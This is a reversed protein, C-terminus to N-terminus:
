RARVRRTRPAATPEFEAEVADWGVEINSGREAAEWAAWSQARQWMEARSLEEAHELEGLRETVLARIAPSLKMGRRRAEAGVRALLDVPLVVSVPGPRTSQAMTSKVVVRVLM